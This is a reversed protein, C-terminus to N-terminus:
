YRPHPNSTWTSNVADSLKARQTGDARFCNLTGGRIAVKLRFINCNASHRLFGFNEQVQEEPQRTRLSQDKNDSRM